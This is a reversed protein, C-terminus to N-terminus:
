LLHYSIPIPLHKRQIYWFLILRCSNKYYVIKSAKTLPDKSKIGIFGNVFEKERYKNITCNGTANPQFTIKQFRM